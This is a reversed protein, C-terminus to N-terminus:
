PREEVFASRLLLQWSASGATLGHYLLNPSIAFALRIVRQCEDPLPNRCLIHQFLHNRSAYCTFNTGNRLFPM